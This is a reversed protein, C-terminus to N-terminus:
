DRRLRFRYNCYSITVRSFPTLPFTDCSLLITLDEKVNSIKRSKRHLGLKLLLIIRREKHVSWSGCIITKHINNKNIVSCSFPLNAKNFNCVKRSGPSKWTCVTIVWRCQCYIGILGYPSTDFQQHNFLLEDLTLNLPLMFRIVKRDPEVPTFLAYKSKKVSSPFRVVM